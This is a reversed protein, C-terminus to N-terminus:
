LMGPDPPIIAISPTFRVMSRRIKTQIAGWAALDREEGVRNLCVVVVGRCGRHFYVSWYVRRYWTGRTSNYYSLVVSRLSGKGPTGALYLRCHLDMNWRRSFGTWPQPVNEKRPGRRTPARGLFSQDFLSSFLHFGSIIRHLNCDNRPIAHHKTPLPIRLM